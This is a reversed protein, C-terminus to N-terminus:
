DVQRRWERDDIRSDRGYLVALPGIVVLLVLIVLSAV